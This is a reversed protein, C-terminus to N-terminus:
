ENQVKQQQTADNSTDPIISLMIRPNEIVERKMHEYLWIPMPFDSDDTYCPSGDCQNFVRVAEPDEFVGQINIYKIGKGFVKNFNSKLYIRNNRYWAFSEKKNFRGNAIYPSASFNVLNYAKKIKDIPGVRTFADGNRPMIPVPLEQATRLIDCDAEVTCCEARDVLELEVCGLDQIFIQEVDRNKDMLNRLYMARKGKIWFKIQRDDIEFDDSIHGGTIIEKIDYIYHNLSYM